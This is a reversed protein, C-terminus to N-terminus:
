GRKQQIQSQTKKQAAMVQQIGQVIFLDPLGTLEPNDSTQSIAGTILGVHSRNSRMM